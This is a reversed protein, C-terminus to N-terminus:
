LGRRGDSFAIGIYARNETYNRNGGTGSGDQRDFRAQLALSRTLTWGIGAGASWSDLHVDGGTPNVPVGNVATDDGAFRNRGYSGNLAFTLLSTIRRSYTVTASEERRDLNTQTLHREKRFTLGFGLTSRVGTIDWTATAYDSRFPDSSLVTDSVSPAVGNFTQAQQFEGASDQYQTGVDLALKSRTGIMRGLGLHAFLGSHTDGLYRLQTSGVSSSLTTRLGTADFGVTESRVDYSTSLLSDEYQTRTTSGGLSVSSTQSLRHVLSISGMYKHNNQDTSEQYDIRSYEGHLALDNARGLPLTVDPGTTFANVNQINGPTVVATPDVALQGFNDHASWTLAGPVLTAILGGDLGGIVQSKYGGELYDFYNLNTALRTQLHPRTDNFDVVLGAQVISASQRADITRGINDSHEFGANLAWDHTDVPTAAATGYVAGAGIPPGASAVGAALAGAVAVVAQTRTTM